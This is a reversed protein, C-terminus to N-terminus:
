SWEISEPLVMEKKQASVTCAHASFNKPWPISKDREIIVTKLFSSINCIDVVRRSHQLIVNLIEGGGQRVM